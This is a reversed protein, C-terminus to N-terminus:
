RIEPTHKRRDLIATEAPYLGDVCTNRRATGPRPVDRALEYHLYNM